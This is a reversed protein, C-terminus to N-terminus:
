RRFFIQTDLLMFFNIHRGDIFLAIVSAECYTFKNM